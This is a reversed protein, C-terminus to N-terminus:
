IAISPLNEMSYLPYPAGRASARKAKPWGGWRAALHALQTQYADAASRRDFEISGVGKPNRQVRDTPACRAARHAYMIILAFLM